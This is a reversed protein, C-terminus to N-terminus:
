LGKMSRSDQFSALEPGLRWKRRLNNNRSEWDGSLLMSVVFSSQEMEMGGGEWWAAYIHSFLSCTEGCSGGKTVGLACMQQSQKRYSYMSIKYSAM